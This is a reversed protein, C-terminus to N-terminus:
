RSSTSSATPTSSSWRAPTPTASPGRRPSRPRRVHAAAARREAGDLSSRRRGGGGGGEPAPAPHSCERELCTSSTATTTASSRCRSTARRRSTASSTSARAASRPRRATPASRPLGEGARGPDKAVAMGIGGGGGAAKCWCRTASASPRRARREGVDPVVGDSGPCWRCARPRRGAARAQSKDKMRAMAEPPPGVFIIGAETCARAFEANESVFGYGPHVAEAGTQKAAELLAEVNLYSDKPPPPGLRVAEDAEPRLAAARRRGLLRRRHAVGMGRAVTGIRRAIEGRNAILLKRFMDRTPRRVSGRGGAAPCADPHCPAAASSM